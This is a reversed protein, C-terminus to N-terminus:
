ALLDRLERLQADLEAVTAQLAAVEAEVTALRDGLGSRGSDTSSSSSFAPASSAALSPEGGFLQAYRVEKHGPQRELRRVLPEERAALLELVSEVEALSDMAALRETRTRLEGVTQPGRLLLMALIARHADDLGWVDDMVHRYKTARNSPSHIVRVLLRARLADLADVIEAEAYNTVRDRNSTQNCATVLANLTLPYYQPTALQKEVLAGLVRVEEGSLDM